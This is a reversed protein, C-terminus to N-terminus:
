YENKEGRRGHVFGSKKGYVSSINEKKYILIIKKKVVDYFSEFLMLAAAKAAALHCICTWIRLYSM